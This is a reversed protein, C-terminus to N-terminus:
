PKRVAFRVTDDDGLYADIVGRGPLGMKGFREGAYDVVYDFTFHSPDNDDVQGFCITLKSPERIGWAMWGRQELLSRRSPNPNPFKAPDIVIADLNRGLAEAETTLLMVHVLRRHGGPSMREHLFVMPNRETWGQPVVRLWRYGSALGMEIEELRRLCYPHFVAFGTPLTMGDSEMYDRGLGVVPKTWLLVDKKATFNLCKGMWYRREIPTVIAAVLLYFVVIGGIAGMWKATIKGWRKWNIGPRDPSYELPITEQRSHDAGVM